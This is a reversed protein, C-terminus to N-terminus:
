EDRLSFDVDVLESSVEDSILQNDTGGTGSGDVADFAALFEAESVVNDVADIKLWCPEPTIYECPDPTGTTIEVWNSFQRETGSVYQYYKIAFPTKKPSTFASFTIALMAAIAVFLYKKM